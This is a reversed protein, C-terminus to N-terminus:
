DIAFATPVPLGNNFPTTIYERGLTLPTDGEKTIVLGLLTAPGSGDAIGSTQIKVAQDSVFSGEATGQSTQNLSANLKAIEIRQWCVFNTATSTRRQRANYFTLPVFTPNNPFNSQVDLTLLVLSTKAFVPGVTTDDFKVDGTLQGTLVAYHSGLGDFILTSQLTLEDFGLTILQGTDGPLTDAAQIPVGNYASEAEPIGRVVADGFLGDFKIPQDDINVVFAVLYGHQCPPVAINGVSSQGNPNLTIKGNVRTSLVFDAEKCVFSRSSAESGPCVWHAHVKIPLGERCTVGTPCTVGIHIETRPEVKTGVTVAGARFYSFVIVSGPEQGNNSTAAQAATLCPVLLLAIWTCTVFRTISYM